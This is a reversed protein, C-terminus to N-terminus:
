REVIVPQTDRTAVIKRALSCLRRIDFPKDLVVEAGLRRAEECTTPDAFSTIVICPIQPAFRHIAGLASLGNCRPMDIDTIILDPLTEPLAASALLEMGDRAQRVDFGANGLATGVLDRLEGDDEALVAIPPAMGM